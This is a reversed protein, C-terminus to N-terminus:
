GSFETVCSKPMYGYSARDYWLSVDEVSNMTVKNTIALFQLCGLHKEVSSHICFIHNM